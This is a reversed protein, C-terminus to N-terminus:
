FVPFHATRPTIRATVEMVRFNLGAVDACREGLRVFLQVDEPGVIRQWSEVRPKGSINWLVHQLEEDSLADFRLKCEPLTDVLADYKRKAGRSPNRRPQLETSGSM